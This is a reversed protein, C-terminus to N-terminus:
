TKTKVITYKNRITYSYFVSFFKLVNIVVPMPIAHYRRLRPPSQSSNTVPTGHDIMCVTNKSILLSVVLFYVDATYECFPLPSKPYAMPLENKVATLILIFFIFVSYTYWNRGMKKKTHTHVRNSRM